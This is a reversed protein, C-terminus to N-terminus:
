DGRWPTNRKQKKNQSILLNIGLDAIDAKPPEINPEARGHDEAPRVM